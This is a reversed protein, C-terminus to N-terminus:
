LRVRNMIEQYSFLALSTYRDRDKFETIERTDHYERGVIKSVMM